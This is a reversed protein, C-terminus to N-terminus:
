ECTGIIQHKFGILVKNKIFSSKVVTYILRKVYLIVDSLIIVLNDACAWKWLYSTNNVLCHQDMIHKSVMKKDSIKNAELRMLGSHM